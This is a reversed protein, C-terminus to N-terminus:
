FFSIFGVEMLRCVACFGLFKVLGEEFFDLFKIFRALDLVANKCGHHIHCQHIVARYTDVVASQIALYLRVGNQPM